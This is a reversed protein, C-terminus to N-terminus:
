NNVKIEVLKKIIKVDELDKVDIQIGRGEMYKRADKLTNIIEKPLDSKEVVSVAKDGFVFTIKFYDEIPIMFFLNRKKRLVKLLWGSKQNYFKWDETLPGFIEEIHNRFDKWYELTKGLVENLDKTDPKITKNDFISESM